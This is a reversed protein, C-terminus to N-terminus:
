YGRNPYKTAMKSAVLLGSTRPRASRDAEKSGASLPGESAHGRACKTQSATSGTVRKAGIGWPELYRPVVYKPAHFTHSYYM